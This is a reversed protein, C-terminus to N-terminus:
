LDRTVGSQIAELISSLQKWVKAAALKGDESTVFPSLRDQAVKGDSMYTGHSEQSAVAGHFLTRSGVETTRALLAKLITLSIGSERTLESHCLGPNLTNLIIGSSELQPALQRIVLVELLKSTPYREKMAKSSPKDLAEFIDDEKWEPFKTWGHVESTVITLRPTITFEKASQKLKPVLLLALLFTSIVNITITKEHGEALTVRETAVGANELLVDIRSLKSAKTAFAKVSDYSSLDLSWVEIVSSGCGTTAEIDDKADEGAQTNRVAMIIKEAGLRAFQRTAEKGLGTNSGTVIITQGNCKQTPYSPTVFLQSYLFSM